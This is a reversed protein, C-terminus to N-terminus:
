RGKWKFGYKRLESILNALGKYDSPTAACRVKNVGDPALLMVKSGKGTKHARFGQRQAESIVLQYDKKVSV